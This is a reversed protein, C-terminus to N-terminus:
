DANNKVKYYYSSDGHPFFLYAKYDITITEGFSEKVRIIDGVKLNEVKSGISIVKYIKEKSKDSIILLGGQTVEEKTQVEQVLIAENNLEINM